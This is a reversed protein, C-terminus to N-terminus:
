LRRQAKSGQLGPRRWCFGGALLLRQSLYAPWISPSNPLCGARAAGGIPSSQNGVEDRSDWALGRGESAWSLWNIKGVARTRSSIWRLHRGVTVIVVVVGYISDLGANLAGHDGTGCTQKRGADLIRRPPLVDACEADEGPAAAHDECETRDETRVARLGNCSTSHKALGREKQQGAATPPANSNM